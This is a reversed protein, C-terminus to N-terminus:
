SLRKVNLHHKKFFYGNQEDYGVLFLDDGYRFSDNEKLAEVVFDESKPIFSDGEELPFWDCDGPEDGFAVMWQITEKSHDGSIDRMKILGAIPTYTGESWDYAFKTVLSSSELIKIHFIKNDKSYFCRKEGHLFFEEKELEILTALFSEKQLLEVSFNRELPLTHFGGEFIVYWVAGFCGLYALKVEKKCGLKAFYEVAEQYSVCDLEKNLRIDM